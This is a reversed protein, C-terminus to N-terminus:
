RQPGNRSGRPGVETAGQQLAHEGCALPGPHWCASCPVWTHPVRFCQCKNWVASRMVPNRCYEWPLSFLFLYALFSLFFHNQPLFFHQLPALLACGHILAPPAQCLCVEWSPDPSLLVGAAEPCGATVSPELDAM